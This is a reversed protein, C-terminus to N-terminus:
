SQRRTPKRVSINTALEAKGFASHLSVQMVDVFFQPDIAPSSQNRNRVSVWFFQPMRRGLGSLEAELLGGPNGLRGM